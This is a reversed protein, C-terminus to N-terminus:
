LGAGALIGDGETASTASISLSLHGSYPFVPNTTGWWKTWRTADIAALYDSPATRISQSLSNTVKMFKNLFYRLDSEQDSPFACHTHGGDVNFGFRDGIGLTQYIAACAMGCVYASPNSLWTYGTNATCYLARPACMAMLLHHDEP